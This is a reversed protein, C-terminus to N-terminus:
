ALIPILSEFQESGCEAAWIGSMRDIVHDMCCNVLTPALVCRQRIGINVTFYGSITGDCGVANNTDSYLGPTLNFTEHNNWSLGSNEM